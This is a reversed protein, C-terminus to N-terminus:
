PLRGDLQRTLFQSRDFLGLENLPERQFNLVLTPFLMIRALEYGAM